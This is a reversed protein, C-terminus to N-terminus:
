GLVVLGEVLVLGQDLPKLGRAGELVEEGPDEAAGRGDADVAAPHLVGVGRLVGVAATADGANVASALAAIGSDPGFRYSRRLLAVGDAIGTGLAAESVPVPTGTLAELSTALDTSYAPEILGSRPVGLDEPWELQSTAIVVGATCAGISCCLTILAVIVTVITGTQKSM